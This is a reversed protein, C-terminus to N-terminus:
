YVLSYAYIGSAYHLFLFMETTERPFWSHFLTAAMDKLMPM